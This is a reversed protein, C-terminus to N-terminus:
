LEQYTLDEKMLKVINKAARLLKPSNSGVAYENFLNLRFGDLNQLRLEKLYEYSEAGPSLYILDFLSKEPEAIFSFQNSVVEVQKFGVFLSKKIHRFKFDGLKTHITEPRQTTVSTILPVYEPILNHYALASQLSLYSAPKLANALAFPHPTSKRYPAALTYLGKRLQILRSSKVWRSLQLRLQAMNEGAGLFGTQFFPETSVKNLIEHWKM